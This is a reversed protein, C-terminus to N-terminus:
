NCVAVFPRSILASYRDACVMGHGDDM